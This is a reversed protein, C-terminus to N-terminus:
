ILEEKELETKSLAVVSKLFPPMEEEAKVVDFNVEVCNNKFWRKIESNSAKGTKDGERSQFCCIEHVSLLYQFCNMFCNM